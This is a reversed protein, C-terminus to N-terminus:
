RIKVDAEERCKKEMEEVRIQVVQQVMKFIAEGIGGDGVEQNGKM